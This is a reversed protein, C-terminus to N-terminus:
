FLEVILARLETKLYKKLVRYITCKYLSAKVSELRREGAQHQINYLRSQTLQTTEFKQFIEKIASFVENM